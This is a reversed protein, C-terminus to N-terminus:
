LSTLLGIISACRIPDIMSYMFWQNRWYRKGETNQIKAIRGHRPFYWLCDYGAQGHGMKTSSFASAVSLSDLPYVIQGFISSKKGGM